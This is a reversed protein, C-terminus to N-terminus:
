KNAQIQENFRKLSLSFLFFFFCSVFQPYVICHVPCLSSPTTCYSLYYHSRFYGTIQIICLACSNFTNFVNFDIYTIHLPLNVDRLKRANSFIDFLLSFWSFMSVRDSWKSALSGIMQCKLFTWVLFLFFLVSHFCHLLKTAVILINEIILEEFIQLRCSHICIASHATLGAGQVRSQHYNYHM